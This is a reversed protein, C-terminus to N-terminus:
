PIYVFDSEYFSFFPYQSDKESIVIQDAPVKWDIALEPDNYAIGKESSKNYYKDCKYLVEASESIVSFGHAFGAPILLQKRNDASLEVSFAKGYAPSGKRIDVAVDIIAGSLVRVLKTQSFPLSQFHLGRIVGYCSRSQNDQVFVTKIGNKSYLEANYSEFFYGRSDEFVSPDIIILGPIGTDSTFPM